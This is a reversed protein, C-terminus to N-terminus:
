SVLPDSAARRRLRLAMLVAYTTVVALLCFFSEAPTLGLTQLLRGVAGGCLVSGVSLAIVQHNSRGSDLLQHHLHWRDPSFPFRGVSLRAFIVAMTDALLYVLTWPAVGESGEAGSGGAEHIVVAVLLGGLLLSGGDGMFIRFPRLPHPFNFVLYAFVAAGVAGFAPLIADGPGAAFLSLAGLVALVQAGALGDLGDIMNLANILGIACFIALGFILARPAEVPLLALGINEVPGQLAVVLAGAAVTQASFKLVSPLPKADDILGLVWLLALGALSPWPLVADSVWFAWPLLAAGLALGGSYPVERGHAKRATPRDLFGMARSLPTFILVAGLAVFFVAAYSLFVEQLGM